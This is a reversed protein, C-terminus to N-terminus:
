PYDFSPSTQCRNRRPSTLLHRPQPATLLCKGISDYSPVSSLTLARHERLAVVSNKTVPRVEQEIVVIPKKQKSGHRTQRRDRARIKGKLPATTELEANAWDGLAFLNNRRHATLEVEAESASGYTGSLSSAYGTKMKHKGTDKYTTPLFTTASTPKTTTSEGHSSSRPQSSSGTTSITGHSERSTPM